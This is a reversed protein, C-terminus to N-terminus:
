VEKLARLQTDLQALSLSTNLAILWDRVMQRRDADRLLTTQTDLLANLSNCQARLSPNVLRLASDHLQPLLEGAREFFTSPTRLAKSRCAESVKSRSCPSLQMQDLLRDLDCNSAVINPTQRRDGLLKLLLLGRAQRQEHSGEVSTLLQQAAPMELPDIHCLVPELWNSQHVVATHNELRALQRTQEEDLSLAGGLVERDQAFPARMVIKISTNRLVSDDLVSASQDAIVFGQGYARMEALANAFAEVALGRPNSSEQSQDTSTKRLLVHAEELVMLHRLASETPLGQAIRREYLRMFLIGMLLARKEPSGMASLDVVCAGEFLREDSTEEHADCLLTMGLSGRCLSRLRASLAGVYDSSADTSYGLLRVVEPVLEAVRRLTPFRRTGGVRCSTLTDWGLEEYAAFVAEELIQPMAAYMPFAANFVSCLRDIHDTLQVGVPFVLPNLRLSDAGSRGAALCLVPRGTRSLGQLRKYEGKAPEIALFPVRQRHAQALLSMILTTKGVGTTGTVLTHYCLKELGLYLNTASDKWLHRVKGLLLQRTPKDQHDADLDLLRVNRGFTPAQVVALATSSRRPMGLLLAVERGTILTAPTVQAVNLRAAFDPVLAPHALQGLWKLVEDRAAKRYSNWTTLAFDEASSGDGRMLGLFLSALSQSGETTPCIFYAASHWGGYARAQEIRELHHDIKGLLQQIKKDHFDTTRQQSTGLTRTDSHTDTHSETVTTSDTTGNSASQSDAQSTSDTVTHTQTKSGVFASTFAKATGGLIEGIWGSPDKTIGTSDAVSNSRTFTSGSTETQSLSQGLATSISQALSTGIARSDQLSYSIQTHELPAISTAVTEFGSRIAHLQESSVPEALILATYPRTGAADLFRELGQSFLEREDTNLTPVGTVATVSTTSTHELHRSFDILPAIQTDVLRHLQSGPFHGAFGEELLNGAASGGDLSHARCGIHLMTEGNKSDILLFVAHGAAGMATYVSSLSEIVAQRSETVLREIRFIRVRRTTELKPKTFPLVSFDGLSGLYSRHILRAAAELDAAPNQGHTAPITTANGLNQPALSTNSSRPM